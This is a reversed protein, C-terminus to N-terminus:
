QTGGEERRGDPTERRFRRGAQSADNWAGCSGRGGLALSESGLDRQRFWFLPSRPTVTFM